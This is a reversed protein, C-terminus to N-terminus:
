ESRDLADLVDEVMMEAGLVGSHGLLWLSREVTFVHGQAVAPINQTLPSTMFEKAREEDDVMLFVYDARLEPVVELSLYEHGTPNDAVLPDVSFGLEEHLIKGASSSRGSLRFGQLEARIFAAIAEPAVRQLQARAEALKEGFRVIRAEARESAGLIAGLDVLTQRANFIDDPILVTPAIRSLQEYRELHFPGGLILDPELALIAELNPEPITGVPETGELMPALYAVFSGELTVAGVPQIELALLGETLHNFLSVVRQPEAPIRTEGAAHRVLRFGETEELVEVQPAQALASGSILLCVIFM